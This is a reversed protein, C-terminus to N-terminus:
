RTPYKVRNLYLGCAPMTSGALSRDRSETIRVVDDVSLKNQGVMLLTGALIRVMNYLFGDASVRFIVCDGERTVRADTITRVTNKVSSGQAMYASFDHTGCLTRAAADMRVVDDASLPKPVHASRGEEFPSRVFRNYFRYLYEKEIVDYRAHFDDNVWAADYVAIDPPLYASFALPIKEIPVNSQLDPCSKKAVTACFMKAHVGSDTRSCGVIDCPYGFVAEAAENLKQQISIGNPQVQYGCYATGLYSIKLFLKM